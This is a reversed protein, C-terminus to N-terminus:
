PNLGYVNNIIELIADWPVDPIGDKPLEAFLREERDISGAQLFATSVDGFELTWGLSATLAYFFMTTHHAVTPAQLAGSAAVRAKHNRRGAKSGKEASEGFHDFSSELMRKPFNM